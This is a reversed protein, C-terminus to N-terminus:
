PFLASVIRDFDNRQNLAVIIENAQVINDTIIADAQSALFHKQSEETNPTWVLLKKGQAHVAEIASSTASEEELGLYDCSLRVTDGYSLFTLYGTQIEPYAQEIYEILDYKLSILIAQNEMEMEKIIKVADDCMQRDASAGKLEVFLLIQGRAAELMEELTAVPDSSGQIRLRKIEELTMQAPTRRSGAVRQFNTDHNVIYYGDATRQIDIESGYAGLSVARKLGSVTNETGENGGGRHAIVQTVTHLPFFTDFNQTMVVALLVLALITAMTRLVLFPYKGTVRDPVSVPADAIYERYLKTLHIMYYPSALLSFAGFLAACFLLILITLFRAVTRDSAVFPLYASVHPLLYGAALLPLLLFLLFALVSLAAILLTYKINEKLYNKWHRRMLAKSRRRSERISLGDLLVGHLCFIHAIGIITFLLTLVAYITHYLPTTEIVSSIFNPIKLGETLSVNLGIGLIPALLTVYLVVGLGHINLFKPLAAVARRVTFRVPETVGDMVNGSYLIKVNLDFSVYFFFVALFLLILLPGQWTNFLFRYDGSSIAVRGTSHLLAMAALRVASVVLLLIIKTFAQYKWIEPALRLM